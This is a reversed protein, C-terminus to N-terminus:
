LLALCKALADERARGYAADERQWQPIQDAGPNGAEGLSFQVGDASGRTTAGPSDSVRASGFQARVIREDTLTLRGLM